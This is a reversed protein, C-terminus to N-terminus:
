AVDSAPIDAPAPDVPGFRRVKRRGCWLDMVYNGAFGLAVAIAAADDRAEFETYSHVGSQVADMRVSNLRCLRYTAM